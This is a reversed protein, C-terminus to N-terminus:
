FFFLSLSSKLIVSYYLLANLLCESLLWLSLSCDSKTGDSGLISRTLNEKKRDTKSNPLQYINKKAKLDYSRLYTSKIEAFYSNTTSPKPSKFHRLEVERAQSILSFHSFIPRYAWMKAWQATLFLRSCKEMAERSQGYWTSPKLSKFHRLEVERALSLLSFRSFIRHYAWIKAWQASLILWFSFFKGKGSVTM